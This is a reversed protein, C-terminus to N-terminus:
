KATAERSSKKSNSEVSPERAIGSLVMDLTDMLNEELAFRGGEASVWRYLVGLYADWVVLAARTADLRGPIDGQQQGSRFIETLMAPTGESTYPLLPGGARLWARTIARGTAPDDEYFRAMGRVIERLQGATDSTREKAEAAIQALKPRNRVFWELVVDEKRAFYNFVTARSVDACEAIDDMTTTDYGRSAFLSVGCQFIRDATELKKRERRGLAASADALGGSRVM